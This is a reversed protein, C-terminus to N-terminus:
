ITDTNREDENILLGVEYIIKWLRRDKEKIDEMDQGSRCISLQSM